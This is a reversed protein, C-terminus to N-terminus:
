REFAANFHEPCLLLVTSLDLIAAEHQGLKSHSVGTSFTTPSISPNLSLRHSRSLSVSLLFFTSHIKVEISCVSSMGLTLPWRLRSTVSLKLTSVRESFFIEERFIAGHIALIWSYTCTYTIIDIIPLSTFSLSPLPYIGHNARTSSLMKYLIAFHVSSCYVVGCCVVDCSLIISFSCFIMALSFISLLSYYLIYVALLHSQLFSTLASSNSGWVFSLASLASSAGYWGWEGRYSQHLYWDHGRWGEKDGIISLTTFVRSYPLLLYSKVHM